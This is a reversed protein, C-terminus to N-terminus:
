GTVAVSTALNRYFPRSGGSECYGIGNDVLLSLDVVCKVTESSFSGFSCIWRRGRRSSRCCGRTGPVRGRNRFRAPGTELRAFACPYTALFCGFKRTEEGLALLLRRYDGIVDVFQRPVRVLEDVTEAVGSAVELSPHPAATWSSSASAESSRLTPLARRPEKSSLERSRDM